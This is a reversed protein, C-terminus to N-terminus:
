RGGSGDMLIISHARSPNCVSRAETRAFCNDANNKGMVNLGTVDEFSSASSQDLRGSDTKRLRDRGPAASGAHSSRNVQMLAADKCGAAAWQLIPAPGVNDWIYHSVAPSCPRDIIRDDILLCIRPM